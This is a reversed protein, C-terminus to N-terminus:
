KFFFPLYMLGAGNHLFINWLNFGFFHGNQISIIFNVYKHTGAMYILFKFVSGRNKLCAKLVIVYMKLTVQKNLHELKIDKTVWIGLKVCLTM